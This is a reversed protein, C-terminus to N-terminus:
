EPTRVWKTCTGTENNRTAAIYVPILIPGNHVLLDNLKLFVQETQGQLLPAVNCSSQSENYELIKGNYFSALDPNLELVVKGYDLPGANKVFLKYGTFHLWSFKLVLQIRPEIEENRRRKELSSQSEQVVTAEEAAKAARESAKAARHSSIASWGAVVLAILAVVFGAIAM